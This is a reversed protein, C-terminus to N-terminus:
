NGKVPKRAHPHEPFMYFAIQPPVNNAQMVSPLDRLRQRYIRFEEKLNEPMDEALQGDSLELQKDRHARIDDWTRHVDRDGLKQEATFADVKLEGNEVRVTFKNFVDQPKLPLEYTFQPYGEIEPSDPHVVVSTYEEQLDNIIPARLQCILPNAACDVEYLYCDIPIPRGDALDEETLPGYKERHTEKDLQLFLKDPGHYVAERTKGESQSHDVLFENPLPLDYTVSIYAM